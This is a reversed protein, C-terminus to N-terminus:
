RKRKVGRVATANLPDEPWEHKPYRRKLEKRVEFYGSAWFSELDKTLQVPKFGPSLLEVLIKEKGNNVSPTETMGFIEQLRVSLLPSSGDAHYRLMIRSSSPVELHSPALESLKKQLPYDLTHFLIEELNLDFLDNENKVENLYSELWISPDNLLAEQSWDPWTEDPNWLKLSQTRNLLQISSEDWNLIFKGESPLAELIVKKIQKQDIDKIPRKGLIIAGIRIETEAILGGDKRDWKIVEKMKLLPKLDKPDVPSALWIKGMGDRADVHAVALWSDDALDDKYSMQAINGNALQFQANNGRRASAIREPFAHALLLGTQFSDVISNEVDTSMMQRYINAVQDIRKLRSSGVGEKRWRRLAEIRLNIDVGAEPGLPDREELLAALDTALPLEDIKKAELLLHAIRPHCPLKQIEKGHETLKNDSIAGLDELTSYASYINPKPPLDLWSMDFIDEKGWSVMDLVMPTLDAELLEPTRFEQLNAHTAKTWLRFAKGSELRGARGSRQDASDQSIRQLVLRSLGTKPDFKSTKSYGSDVVVRVGEITLSTEAIDTSLVIKRKGNTDPLIAKQQASFPLSGYLPCINFDPLSAKLQKEAKKIEGQGPLFVLVDGQTTKVIKSVQRATDGGLDYSDIEGLYDIEVPFQRGKSEIVKASLMQSLSRTDITASMLLIRLDPRLIEQIERSLALGVESHLNREHFEDFILLGVNELANDSHIMRTLIGETIVEIKTEDTAKQDFRIRYGVEKGVQTGTMEAMRSAISKAALRRPELMLIKKGKLWSENALVIPILTSKGAGPPAKVIATNDKELVEKLEQVIESAPLDFSSLDFSKFFSM